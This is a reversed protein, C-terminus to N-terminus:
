LKDGLAQKQAPLPKDLLSDIFEDTAKVVLPDAKPLTPLAAETSSPVNTLLRVIEAAPLKALSVLSHQQQMTMTTATSSSAPPAPSPASTSPSASETTATPQRPQEIAGEEVVQAQERPEAGDQQEVDADSSDLVVKADAIKARLVEPNFLCLARERKSLSMLLETLETRRSTELRAVAAHMRERETATSNGVGGGGAQGSGSSINNGNNHAVFPLVSGSPSSTRPPTSLSASVSIPTSPHEPASATASPSLLLGSSAANPAYMSRSDHSTAPSPTARTALGVGEGVTQTMLAEEEGSPPPPYLAQTAGRVQEAFRTPDQIGQVVDGLSMGVLTEVVADVEGPAVASPPPLARVRRSLEGTLVERRVVPSLAALEDYRMPLNLTGSLAAQTLRCCNDNGHARAFLSSLLADV